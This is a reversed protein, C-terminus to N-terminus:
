KTIKVGCADCTQTAELSSNSQNFKIPARKLLMALCSIMDDAYVGLGRFICKTRQYKIEMFLGEYPSQNVPTLTQTEGFVILGKEFIFCIRRKEENREVALPGKEIPIEIYKLCSTKIDNLEVENLNTAIDDLATKKPPKVALDSIPKLFYAGLGGTLIGLLLQPHIKKERLILARRTTVLISWYEESFLFNFTPPEKYHGPVKLIVAETAVNVSSLSQSHQRALGQQYFQWDSSEANEQPLSM